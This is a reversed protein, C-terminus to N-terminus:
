VRRPTMRWLLRNGRDVSVAKEDLRGSQRYTASLLILRHLPKLQWGSDAFRLALWDLLEPHSPKEGNFGFDSPTGVLGHGFHHQWVRNVLVRAPLPNDPHGLWRALALRRESEPASAPLTLAPRVVAPAAPTVA